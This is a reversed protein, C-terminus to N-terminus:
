TGCGYKNFYKKEIPDYLKYVKYEESVGLHVCKVSKADLKKRHVKPIHVFVMCGFVKLHHVLPKMGSWAEELTMDKVYLALTRNLIRAEWKSAESWLNKSIRRGSVM